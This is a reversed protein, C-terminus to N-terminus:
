DASALSQTEIRLDLLDEDGLRSFPNSTGFRGWQKGSASRAAIVGGSMCEPLFLSPPDCFGGEMGIWAALCGADIFVGFTTATADWLLESSPIESLAIEWLRVRWRTGGLIFTQLGVFWPWASYPFCPESDNVTSDLGYLMIGPVEEGDMFVTLIENLPKSLRRVVEVGSECIASSCHGM